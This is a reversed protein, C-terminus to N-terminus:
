MDVYLVPVYFVTSGLSLVCPIHYGGVSFLCSLTMALSSNYLETCYKGGMCSARSEIGLVRCVLHSLVIRSVWSEPPLPLLILLEFVIQSM